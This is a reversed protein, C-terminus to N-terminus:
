IDHREFAVNGAQLVAVCRDAFERPVAVALFGEARTAGVYIVRKAELESRDEWSGILATTRRKRCPPIVVCVAKYQRGKADHITASPLNLTAPAELLRLWDDQSPKRFIGRLTKGQPMQFGHREIQERVCEIWADRHEDGEPCTKPLAMVFGMAQRRFQRPNISLRKMARSVHENEQRLEMADLLQGELRRLTDERSKPTADSAWFRSVARAVAEIKSKGEGDTFKDGAARRADNEGHALIMVSEREHGAAEIQQLLKNGIADSVTGQYTLMVVPQPSARYDGLSQDANGAGRLTGAFNCIAPASRFNGTLGLRNAAEYEERLARLGVPDSGRFAYISQDIDSVVTVRIGAGRLWRVVELDFPDCDQAEDVIVEQFRAALARALADSRAGDRIFVRARARADAASMYGAQLLSNRRQTAIAVYRARHLEVHARLGNHKIKGPDIENTAADFLDLPVGDGRFADNRALRIEIGFSEWSDVIIPRQGSEPIGGPMVIFHRVFGDFTGVFSPLRLFQQCGYKLCRTRFEDVASNTFSLVAVGKRPPLTEAIKALRAVITRTKGAGPCAQVFAEAAHQALNLQEVTLGAFVTM